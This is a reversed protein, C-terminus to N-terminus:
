CVWWCKNCKLTGVRSEMKGAQCKPCVDGDRVIKESEEDGGFTAPLPITADTVWDPAVRSYQTLHEQSPMPGHEQCSDVGLMFKTKRGCYVCEEVIGDTVFVPVMFVPECRTIENVHIKYPNENGYFIWCGSLDVKVFTIKADGKFFLSYGSSIKAFSVLKLVLNRRDSWGASHAWRFNFMLESSRERKRRELMKLVAGNGIQYGRVTRVGKAM